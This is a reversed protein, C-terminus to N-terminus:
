LRGGRSGIVLAKGIGGLGILTLVRCGPDQLAQEIITLERERGVYIQWGARSARNRGGSQNAASRM